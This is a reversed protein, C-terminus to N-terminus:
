VQPPPTIVDSSRHLLNYHYSFYKQHMLEVSPHLAFPDASPIYDKVVSKLVSQESNAGNMTNLWDALSNNLKETLRDEVLVLHIADQAYKQLVKRYVKGDIVMKGHTPRFSGQDNWYPLTIPVSIRMAPGDYNILSQYKYDIQKLSYWYYGLYGVHYLLFLTLFFIAITKRM